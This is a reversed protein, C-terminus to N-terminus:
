KSWRGTSFCAAASVKTHAYGASKNRISRDKKENESGSGHSEREKQVEVSSMLLDDITCANSIVKNM